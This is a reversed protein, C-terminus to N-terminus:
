RVLVLPWLLASLVRNALSGEVICCGFILAAGAYAGALFALIV